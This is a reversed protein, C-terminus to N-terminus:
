GNLLCEGSIRRTNAGDSARLVWCAPSPLCPWVRLPSWSLHSSDELVYVCLIIEAIILAIFVIILTIFVICCAVTVTPSRARQPGAYLGTKAHLHLGQMCM